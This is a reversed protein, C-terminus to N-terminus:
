DDDGVKTKARGDTVDEQKAKTSEAAKAEYLICAAHVTRTPTSGFQGNDESSSGMGLLVVGECGKEAAYEVLMRAAGASGVKEADMSGEILGVESYPRTPRKSLFIDVKNGPRPSLSSARPDIGSFSFRTSAGCASLVVALLVHHGKM